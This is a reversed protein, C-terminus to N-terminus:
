RAVTNTGAGPRSEAVARCIAVRKPPGTSGKGSSSGAMLAASAPARPPLLAAPPVPEAYDGRVAISCGASRRHHAYSLQNSCWTTTRPAPPELGRAWGRFGCILPGSRSSPRAKQSEPTRNQSGIKNAPERFGALLADLVRVLSRASMRAREHVSAAWLEQLGATLDERMGPTIHSYVGRMGPVEHGM